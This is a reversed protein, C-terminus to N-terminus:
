ERLSELTELNDDRTTASAPVYGVERVIDTEAQELYFKLFEYVPDRQVAEESTYIYLPRAMPYSGDKANALSPSSCEDGTEERVQLAKVTDSNESYYAFGFYGM